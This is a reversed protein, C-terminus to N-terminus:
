KLFVLAFLSSPFLPVCVEMVWVGGGNRNFPTGYSGSPNTVSCGAANDLNCNVNNNNVEGSMLNPSDGLSPFSCSNSTHLSTYAVTSDDFSELIDIEGYPGESQRITWSKTKM